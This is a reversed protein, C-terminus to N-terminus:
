EADKIIQNQAMESARKLPNAVVRATKDARSFACAPRTSIPALLGITHKRCARYAEGSANGHTKRKGFSHLHAAFGPPSPGLGQLTVISPVDPLQRTKLQMANYQMANCQVASCQIANYQMKHGPPYVFLPALAPKVFRLKSHLHKSRVVSALESDWESVRVSVLECM